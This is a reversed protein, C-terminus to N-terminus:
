RVGQLFRRFEHNALLLERGARILEDVQETSLALSAPIQNFYLRRDPQPIANFDVKVFYPRVVFDGESLEEAWRQVTTKMLDLTRANATHLQTDTMANITEEITAVRNSQEMEFRPKTSADVSIVVLNPTPRGGVQDLFPKAGGALEVMEYVALLGLNDTLGGDVLHIYQRSDKDAYSALGEVVAKLQPSDRVQSAVLTLREFAGTDCDVHNKLIVPNFLIPVASSATVARAVPFSSLDSCLLDFYDQLFSFRVGRGMDTANIVITPGQRDYLEAFTANDFLQDEYFQIVMETRGRDSFWLSSDFLGSLLESSVDRRLFDPEFDRFIADGNLGFYAATFSGGSVSSILDIEDLLRAPKEDVPIVTDRLGQLVGYALAAARTGGGSFTLVLTVNESPKRQITSGVSYDIANPNEELSLNSIKGYSACGVTLSLLLGFFARLLIRPATISGVKASLFPVQSCTTARREPSNM